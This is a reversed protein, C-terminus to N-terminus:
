LLKTVPRPYSNAKMGLRLDNKSQRIAVSREIFEQKVGQTQDMVKHIHGKDRLVVQRNPNTHQKYYRNLSRHGLVNGNPLVLEYEMDDASSDNVMDELEPYDYFDYYEEMHRDDIRCHGKNLMHKRVADLTYFEKGSDSCFLCTFYRKVKEQLFEVLDTINLCYELDPIFFLHEASMHDVLADVSDGLHDCFICEELVLPRNMEEETSQDLENIPHEKERREQKRIIEDECMDSNKVNDKHKKSQEHNEFAKENGFQKRCVNCYFTSNLEAEISNEISKTLLVRSRFEESTVAPLKM